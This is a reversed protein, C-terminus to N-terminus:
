AWLLSVLRAMHQWHPPSQLSLLPWPAPSYPLGLCKYSNHGYLSINPLWTTCTLFPVESLSPIARSGPWFNLIWYRSDENAWDFHLSLSHNFIAPMDAQAKQSSAHSHSMQNAGISFSLSLSRDDGSTIPFCTKKGFPLSSITTPHPYKFDDIGSVAMKEWWGPSSQSANKLM